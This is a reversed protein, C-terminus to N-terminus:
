NNYDVMARQKLNIYGDVKDFILKEIQKINKRFFMFDLNFDRSNISPFNKDIFRFGERIHNIAKFIHETKQSYRIYQTQYIFDMFGPLLNPTLNLIDLNVLIIFKLYEINDIKGLVGFPLWLGIQHKSSLCLAQYLKFAEKFTTNNSINILLIPNIYMKEAVQFFQKSFEPQVFFYVSLFNEITDHQEVIELITKWDQTSEIFLNIKPPLGDIGLNYNKLQNLFTDLLSFNSNIPWLSIVANNFNNQTIIDTIRNKVIDSSLRCQIRLTDLHKRESRQMDIENCVLNRNNSSDNASKKM